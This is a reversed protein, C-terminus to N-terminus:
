SVSELVGPNAALFPANSASPAIADRAATPSVQAAVKALVKFTCQLAMMLDTTTLVGCLRDDEMVPLCSIRKRILLSVATNIQTNYEVCIPDPTMMQGATKADPRSMDRDSIIGVLKDGDCVLLHRLKNANMLKRADDASAEPSVTTLKRSMIHRVELRSDLLAHMQSSLITYIEQRKQFVADHDLEPVVDEEEDSRRKTARRLYPLICVVGIIGLVAMIAFLYHPKLLTPESIAKSLAGRNDGWDSPQRPKPETTSRGQNLLQVVSTMSDSTARSLLGVVGLGLIALMSLLAIHELIAAGSVDGMLRKIGSTKCEAKDGGPLSGEPISGAM